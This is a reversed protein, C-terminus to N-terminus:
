NILGLALDPGLTISGFCLGFGQSVFDLVHSLLPGLRFDLGLTIPGLALSLTILELGFSM